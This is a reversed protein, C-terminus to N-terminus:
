SKLIIVLPILDNNVFSKKFDLPYKSMWHIGIMGGLSIAILYNESNNNINVKKFDPELSGQVAGFDPLVLCSM